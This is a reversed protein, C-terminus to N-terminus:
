WYKSATGNKSTWGKPWAVLECSGEVWNGYEDTATVTLGTGAPYSISPDTSVGASFSGDPATTDSLEEFYFGPSGAVTASVKANPYLGSGAVAYLADEATMGPHPVGFPQAILPHNGGQVDGYFINSTEGTGNANPDPWSAGASFDPTTAVTLTGLGATFHTRGSPHGVVVVQFAGLPALQSEQLGPGKPSSGIWTPQGIASFDVPTGIQTGSGNFVKGSIGTLFHNKDFNLTLVIRTGAPITASPLNLISASTQTVSPQPFGPVGGSPPWIQEFLVLSNNQMILGYQMWHADWKYPSQGPKPNYNPPPYPPFGNIQVSFGPPTDGIWNSGQSSQSDFVLEEIIDLTITVGTFNQTQSPPLLVYQGSGILVPFPPTAITLLPLNEAAPGGDELGTWLQFNHGFLRMPNVVLHAGPELSANEIEIVFGTQPNQIFFYGSGFPDPLLDWLQNQNDRMKEPWADLSAGKATSNGSIDICRGTAPNKIIHHNSGAPDPLIEWTQNSAIPPPPGVLDIGGGVVPRAELPPAGSSSSSEQIDIVHDNLKSQITISM